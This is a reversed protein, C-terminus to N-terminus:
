TKAPSQGAAIGKTGPEQGTLSSATQIAKPNLCESNSNSNANAASGKDTGGNKGGGNRDRGFLLPQRGILGHVHNGLNHATDISAGSVLGSVVLVLVSLMHHLM